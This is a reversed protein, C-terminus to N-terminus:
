TAVPVCKLIHICLLYNKHLCVIDDHTCNICTGVQEIILNPFHTAQIHQSVQGQQSGDKNLNKSDEGCCVASVDHDTAENSEQEGRVNIGQQSSMFDHERVDVM